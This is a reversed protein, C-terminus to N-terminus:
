KKWREEKEKRRAERLVKIDKKIAESSSFESIKCSNWIDEATANLSRRLVEVVVGKVLVCNNITFLGKKCWFFNKLLYETIEIYDAQSIYDAGFNCMKKRYLSNPNRLFSYHETNFSQKGHVITKVIEDNDPTFIITHVGFRNENKSETIYAEIVDHLLYQRIQKDTIVEETKNTKGIGIKSAFWSSPIILSNGLKLISFFTDINIDAFQGCLFRSVDECEMNYGNVRLPASFGDMFNVDCFHLNLINDPEIFTTEDIIQYNNFTESEDVKDAIVILDLMYQDAVSQVKEMSVETVINPSQIQFIEVDRDIQRFIFTFMSCIVAKPTFKSILKSFGDLGRIIDKLHAEKNKGEGGKENVYAGELVRKHSIVHLKSPPQNKCMRHLVQEHSLVRMNPCSDKRIEKKTTDNM